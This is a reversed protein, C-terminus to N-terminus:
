DKLMAFSNVLGAATPQAELWFAKNEPDGASFLHDYKVRDDNPPVREIARVAFERLQRANALRPNLAVYYLGLKEVSSIERNFEKGVERFQSLVVLIRDGINLPMIEYENGAPIRSLLDPGKPRAAIRKKIEGLNTGGSGALVFVLPTGREVSADLYPLLIEYPWPEQPKADCEDILCLCPADKCDLGSLGVRFEQESCKALNLEQYRITSPLSAAIQQAFYTKGSGPAAWILHNERKRSPQLCGAAIRTRADKLTNRVAEDYRTYKGVVRYRSLVIEDLKAILGHAEQAAADGMAQEREQADLKREPKSPTVDIPDGLFEAIGRVMPEVDGLMPPHINGELQVFRAGPITAAIERGLHFPAVRDGRRHMVLTPVRVKPLLDTVDLHFNMDFFPAVLEPDISERQRQIFWQRVSPEADPIFLDALLKSGIDWDAKILLDYARKLEGSVIAEGRAFTGYLILHSVRRPYLVAYAASITGGQSYGFLIFRRLKLHDVVAQLPRIESDLSFDTRNRQSLGLGHRDYVIVTHSRAIPELFAQGTPSDWNLKFHSIWGPCIVFPSGQGVTTYAIRIGDATKCFRIQLEM